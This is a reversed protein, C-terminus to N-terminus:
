CCSKAAKIWVSSSGSAPCQCSLLRALPGIGMAFCGDSQIQPLPSNRPRLRSILQDGNGFRRNGQERRGCSCRSGSPSNSATVIISTRFILTELASLADILAALQEETLM